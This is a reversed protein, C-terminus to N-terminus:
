IASNRCADVSGHDKGNLDAQISCFEYADFSIYSALRLAGGFPFCYAARSWLEHCVKLERLTCWSGWKCNCFNFIDFIRPCTKIWQQKEKQVTYSMLKSYLSALLLRTFVRLLSSVNGVRVDLLEHGTKKDQCIKWSWARDHSPGLLKLLHIRIPWRSYRLWVM